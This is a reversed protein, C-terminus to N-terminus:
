KTFVQPVMQGQTNWYLTLTGDILTGTFPVVKTSNFTINGTSTRTFSGVDTTTSVTATGSVTTRETIVETYTNTATLTVVDNIMEVKDTGTQSLTYPLPQGGMTRISYVGAVDNPNVPDGGGTVRNGSIGVSDTICATLGLVAAAMFLRRM